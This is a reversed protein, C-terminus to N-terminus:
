VLIGTFRNNQRLHCISLSQMQHIYSKNVISIIMDLMTTEVYPQFRSDNNRTDMGDGMPIEYIRMLGTHQRRHGCKNPNACDCKELEVMFQMLECFVGIVCEPLENLGSYYEVELKANNDCGCTNLIGLYGSFDVMLRRSVHDYSYDTEKIPICERHIGNMYSIYLFEIDYREKRIPGDPTEEVDITQGLPFSLRFGRVGKPCECIDIPDLDFVDMREGYEMTTCDVFGRKDHNPLTGTWCTMASIQRITLEAARRLVDPKANPLCPCSELLQDVLM